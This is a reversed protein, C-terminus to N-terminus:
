GGRKENDIELWFQKLARQISDLHKKGGDQIIHINARTNTFPRTIKIEDYILIENHNNNSGYRVNKEGYLKVFNKFLLNSINQRHHQKKTEEVSSPKYNKIEDSLNKSLADINIPSINLTDKQHSPTGGKKPLPPLVQISKIFSTNVIRYTSSKSDKADNIKLIIIENSSSYTFIQGIITQDLLNTIKVKLNIIQDFNQFSM